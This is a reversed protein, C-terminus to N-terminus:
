SLPYGRAVHFVMLALLTAKRVPESWLCVALLMCTHTHAHAHTCWHNCAEVV